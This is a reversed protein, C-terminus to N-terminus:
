LNRSKLKGGKILGDHHHMKLHGEIQSMTDLDVGVMILLSTGGMLYAVSRPFNFIAVIFTPILAILALFLSGPLVIRNLVRTLYAEMNESRIGPISGGNERIQRAIEVPNLSVQTYFYAFFVILLTYTVLYFVGDPRMLNAFRAWGAKSPDMMGALQMPLSLIASAFIVPIVGSPNIKLPIYANQSGYVKRGVIRKAYHVPIKRQGQQEYIVLIVVGIYMVLAFIVFVPNLNGQGIERVLTSVAGPMRAVIGTFIILSIGNGIGRENIQEGIWMLLLTGVTVTMVALVSFKWGVLSPNIVNPISKAYSLIAVSQVLCVVVTGFRILKQVKKKGGDEESMKKLAPFALMLVQMIISMSIYPMIGLMFISFNKFAGGAFFDLYDTLGLSGNTGSLSLFHRELVNVDIGPIPLVAGLRFVMLMALTFFVKQRLDKVRFINAIGNDAM